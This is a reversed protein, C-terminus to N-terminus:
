VRSCTLVVNLLIKIKVTNYCKYCMRNGTVENGTNLPVNKTVALNKGSLVM